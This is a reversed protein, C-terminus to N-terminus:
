RLLRGPLHAAGIVGARDELGSRLLPVESLIRAFGQERLTRRLSPEILDFSRSVGGTFVFADLDLLNQITTIGLGLAEGMEEFVLRGADEGRRASDAIERIESANGGLEAFRRLLGATGAYAEMCGHRGCGCQWPEAGRDITVHGVEAAFGHAGRHPEGDLV